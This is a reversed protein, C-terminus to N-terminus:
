ESCCVVVSLAIVHSSVCISGVRYHLLLRLLLVMKSSLPFHALIWEGWALNKPDSAPPQILKATLSQRVQRYTELAEALTALCIQIISVCQPNTIVKPTSLLLLNKLM